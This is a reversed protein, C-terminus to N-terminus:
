HSFFNKWTPITVNVVFGYAGKLLIVDTGIVVPVVVAIVPVCTVVAGCGGTVASGGAWTIIGATTVMAIPTITVAGLKDVTEQVNLLRTLTSNNAAANPKPNALLARCVLPRLRCLAPIGGGNGDGWGGWSLGGDAASIEINTIGPDPNPATVNVVVPNPAVCLGTPDCV